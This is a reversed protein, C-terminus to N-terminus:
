NKIRSVIFVARQVWILVKTDKIKSTNSRSFFSFCFKLVSFIWNYCSVKSWVWYQVLPSRSWGQSNRAECWYEGQHLATVLELTLTSLGRAETINAEPVPIGDKYWTIVPNPIGVAKCTLNARGGRSIFKKAPPNVTFIPSSSELDYCCFTVNFKSTTCFSFLINIQTDNNPESCLWKRIFIALISNKRM